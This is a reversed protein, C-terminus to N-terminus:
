TIIDKEIMQNIEESSMRREGGGNVSLKIDDAWGLNKLAFIVGVPFIENWAYTTPDKLVELIDSYMAGTIGGSFASYLNSSESWLGVVFTILFLLLTSKGVRPPCSLFLEDLEGDLLQQISRVTEQLQQKKRPAYFRERASRHHKLWPMYSEFDGERAMM